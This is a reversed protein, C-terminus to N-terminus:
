DKAYEIILETEKKLKLYESAVKTIDKEATLISAVLENNKDYIEYRLTGIYDFAGIFKIKLYKM